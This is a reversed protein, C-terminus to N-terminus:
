VIWTEEWWKVKLHLKALIELADYFKLGPIEPLVNEMMKGNVYALLKSPWRRGIEKPGFLPTGLVFRLRDILTASDQSSRQLAGLCHFLGTVLNVKRFSKTKWHKEGSKWAVFFRCFFWTIVPDPNILTHTKPQFYSSWLHDCPSSVAGRLQRQSPFMCSLPTQSMNQICSCVYSIMLNNGYSNLRCGWENKLGVGHSDISSRLTQTNTYKSMTWLNFFSISAQNLRTEM